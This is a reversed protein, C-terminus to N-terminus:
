ALGPFFDTKINFRSIGLGLFMKKMANVMGLPGSIYFLRESYDPVEQKIFEADIVGIHYATRWGVRGANSFVDQYAVESDTKSSYLLVADRNEGTAICHRAM